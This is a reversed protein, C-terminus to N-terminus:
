TSKRFHFVIKAVLIQSEKETDDTRSIKKHRPFLLKIRYITSLASSNSSEFNQFPSFKSDLLTTKSRIM